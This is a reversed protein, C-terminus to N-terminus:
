NIPIVLKIRRGAHGANKIELRGGILKAKEFVSLDFPNVPADKKNRKITEGNYDITISIKSQTYKVAASHLQGKPEERIMILIKLLVGFLVLGKEEKITAPIVSKEDTHYVAEPYISKIEHEVVRNFGSGSLLDSEPYLLRCMSRLDRITKGVLEGSSDIKEKKGTEFDSRLLSLQVRILSLVQGINEYAEKVVTKLFHERIELRANLIEFQYLLERYSGHDRM